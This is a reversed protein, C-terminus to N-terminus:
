NCNSLQNVWDTLLSVGEHDVLNSALPPMAFQDRRNIREILVSRSADGPAILRANAIGLDDQPVEDCTQTQNLTTDFRLDMSTPTPGFPQHCGACNTHLYARARADIDATANYPDALADLQSVPEPIDVSFLDIHNYVELQNDTIGTTAYLFNSNQQATELGLSFGAIETHCILCDSESPIIWDQGSVNVTAGNRIRTAITQAGNWEYTYGAWNGDPHRMFLRTEVLQNGIGFNKVLVTGRPFSFDGDPQVNANTGDPLAIWRNKDAGDSWFQAAPAYPILGSAPQRPDSQLVCGTDTLDDPVNDQATGGNSDFRLVRSTSSFTLVYVEGNSDFGFGPVRMGPNGIDVANFGTSPTGELYWVDGSRFDAFVYHGFLESARSGRYVFGGTISGNSPEHAYEYIPDVLSPLNCGSTQFDQTGERCPWGYNEGASVLNIEEFTNDGVDALWLDGTPMDFSFRYPNRLGWSFIEPCEQANDGSNCKPNGAFSNSNPINYGPSPHSVGLVDIRLMSGLWNSNSQSVSSSGAGDGLGLYLYDDPGFSITGGNHFETPQDVDIIVQENFTAPLVTDDTVVLRSLRSKFQGDNLTYYVYLHKRTPWSPDFAFGLLGGEGSASVPLTLYTDLNSSAADNVFRRIDGERQIAYLNNENPAQLLKLPFALGPLNPFADVM